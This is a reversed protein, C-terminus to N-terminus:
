GDSTKKKRESFSRSSVLRPICCQASKVSEDEARYVGNTTKENNGGYNADAKAKEPIVNHDTATNEVDMNQDRRLSEKFLESLRKKKIDPPSPTGEVDPSKDPGSSFKHHVPTSGRSPTFDGNVSLFDDECDSEMWPQSDFFAEDKSGPPPQRFRSSSLQPKLAVDAVTPDGGNVADPKLKVPSPILLTDDKSGVSLRLKMPDKHVSVCSGM